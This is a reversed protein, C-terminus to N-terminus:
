PARVYGRLMRHLEARLRERSYPTERGVAREIVSGSLSWGAVMSIAMVVSMELRDRAVKGGLATVRDYMGDIINGLMGKEVLHDTRDTLISWAILRTLTPDDLIDMLADLMPSETPAFTASGLRAFAGARMVALRRAIVESVLEDYTGFYHTVLGHSVQAAKAIERLGVQDPLATTFVRDAADLIHTRAAAPTRRVRLKPV